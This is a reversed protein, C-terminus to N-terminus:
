SDLVTICPVCGDTRRADVFGERPEPNARFTNPIFQQPQKGFIAGYLWADMFDDYFSM